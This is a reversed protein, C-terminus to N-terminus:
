DGKPAVKGRILSEPHREIYDAVARLAYAADTLAEFAGTLEYMLESDESTTKKISATAKEIQELADRAAQATEEVGTALTDVRGDINHVLKKAKKLTENLNSVSEKMEPSNVLEEIGSVADRAANVLEELRLDAITKTLEEMRSPITPFEPYKSYFGSLTVPKDPHFDLRVELLGTVFSQLELRARLGREVLLEVAKRPGGKVRPGIRKIRGPELEVIVEIRASLDTSNALINVDTVQGLKVGRFTVPSGVNLGKVSGDFYMVYKITETLFQGSGFILVCAVALIVAGVIFGGIITPNAKKSM